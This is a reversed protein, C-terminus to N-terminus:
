SDHKWIRPRWRRWWTVLSSRSVRGSRARHGTAINPIRTDEPTGEAAGDSDGARRVANTVIMATFLGLTALLFFPLHHDIPFGRPSATLLAFFSGTSLPAIARAASAFSNAIGNYFGIRGHAESLLDNLLVSISAFMLPGALGRLVSVTSLGVWLAGISSHRVLVLFPCLLVGVTLSSLGLQLCGLHGM